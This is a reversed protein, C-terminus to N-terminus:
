LEQALFGVVKTTPLFPAKEKRSYSYGDSRHLALFYKHNIGQVRGSTGRIDFSGSVRCSVRGVYVGAKKGSPVVAKAIDGTQFGFFQKQRKLYGRPFGSANVNTRCHQGRGTAAIMLVDHAKVYLADPTSVGVCAADYYHDKSVNLRKRNYATMGGTGCEVPLSFSKLVEYVKWRTATVMAADRLPAKAQEQVDPRGFEEATQNGKRANCDHCSWALNSIRNSGGRSKPVIHEVEFKVGSGESVGCYCCKHGFKESLYGRIEYGFLTGQQYEVGSINPDQLKQTDFKVNEYSIFGIPCVASLRRVWTEINQVRSMLSPPLWGKPRTRNDFRPARHRLNATRRRRRYGRRKDMKAKIDTRHEVQGLWVVNEGKLIALGTHCSGYDIKIRYNTGPLEAEPVERKLVITFPYMRFIAAKGQRLLKRATSEHCMDLPHRKADIVFVM